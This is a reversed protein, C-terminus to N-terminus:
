LNKNLIPQTIQPQTFLNYLGDSLDEHGAGGSGQLSSPVSQLTDMTDRGLSDGGQLTPAASKAGDPSAFGTPLPQAPQDDFPILPQSPAPSQQSWPMLRSVASKINYLPSGPAATQVAMVLLALVAFSTALSLRRVVRDRRPHLGLEEAIADKASPSLDPLPTQRLSRALAALDDAEQRGVAQGRLQRKLLFDRM